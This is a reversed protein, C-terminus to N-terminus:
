FEKKKSTVNYAHVLTARRVSFEVGDDQSAPKERPNGDIVEDSDFNFTLLMEYEGDEMEEPEQEYGSGYYNMVYKKTSGLWIGSPSELEYGKKMPISIRSDAMSHLKGTEEKFTMVKYGVSSQSNEVLHLLQQAKTM